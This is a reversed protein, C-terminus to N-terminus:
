EAPKRAVLLGLEGLAAEILDLTRESDASIKHYHYGSTINNLPSSKGSRIGELFEEVRRRSDINLEAELRGYIKHHVMVNDVCGGLDVVTRLEEALMVDTHRVKIVRSVTLPANIVYGRNTSVIDYGAARILAIDQVIVQRSVGLETALYTGSLPAKSSRILKTIEERRENGTM